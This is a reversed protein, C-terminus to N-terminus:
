NHFNFKIEKVEILTQKVNDFVYLPKHLVMAIKVTWLTQSNDSGLLIVIADSDCIKDFAITDHDLRGCTTRAKLRTAIEQEIVKEEYTNHLDPPLSLYAKM